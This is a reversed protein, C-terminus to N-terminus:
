QHPVPAHGPVEYIPQQPNHPLHPISTADLEMPHAQQFQQGGGSYPPVPSTGAESFASMRPDYTGNKHPQAYQGQAYQGQAGNNPVNNNEYGYYGASAPAAQSMGPSPGVSPANGPAGAVGGETTHDKNKRKRMLLFIIGIAFAGIVALGGVVGGVIAGVNTKSGGGGGGGGTQVPLASNTTTVTSISSIRSSQATLLGNTTSSSDVGSSTPTYRYASWSRGDTEGLFTFSVTARASVSSPACGWITASIDPWTSAYCFPSASNTCIVADSDQQCGQDCKSSVFIDASNYCTTIFFCDGSGGPQPCCGVAGPINGIPAIAACRQTSSCVSAPNGISGSIFGCTSDPAFYGVLEGSSLTATAPQRAFLGRNKIFELSPAQTPKPTWGHIAFDNMAKITEIPYLPGYEASVHEVLLSALAVFLSRM